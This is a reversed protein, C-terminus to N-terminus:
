SGSYRYFSGNGTIDGLGFAVLSFENGSCFETFQVIDMNGIAPKLANFLALDFRDMVEKYYGNVKTKIVIRM